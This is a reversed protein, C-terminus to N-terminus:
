WSEEVSVPLNLKNKNLIDKMGKKEKTKIKAREEVNRAETGKKYKHRM